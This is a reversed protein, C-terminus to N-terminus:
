KERKFPCPKPADGFHEQLLLGCKCYSADRATLFQRRGPTPGKTMHAVTADGLAERLPRSAGSLAKEALPALAEKAAEKREEEADREGRFRQAFYEWLISM